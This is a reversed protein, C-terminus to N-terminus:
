ISILNKKGVSWIIFISYILSNYLLSYRGKFDNIQASNHAYYNRILTARSINILIFKRQKDTNKLEKIEETIKDIKESFNAATVPSTKWSFYDDWWTEQDCIPKLIKKFGYIEKYQTRITDISCLGIAKIIEEVFIGLNRLHFSLNQNSKYDNSFYDKNLETIFILFHDLGNTEIFNILNSIDTETVQYQPLLIKNYNNVQVKIHLMAKEKIDERENPFIIELTSKQEKSYLKFDCIIPGNKDINQSIHELSDGTLYWMLRILYWIDKKTLEQLKLKEAYKYNFHHECLKGLFVYLDEINLTYYNFIENSFVKIINDLNDTEEKTLFEGVKKNEFAIQQSRQFCQIFSSLCNYYQEFSSLKLINDKKHRHWKEIFEKDCTLYYNNKNEDFRLMYYNRRFDNIADLEYIQWYSYYNKNRNTVRSGENEDIYNVEYDEWDTFEDEKPNRLYIQWDKNMEDFPHRTKNYCSRFEFIEDDLKQLSLFAPNYGKIDNPTFFDNEKFIAYDESFLWRKIPYFLKEREFTELDHLNIMVSYEKCIKIFDEQEIYKCNSYNLKKFM